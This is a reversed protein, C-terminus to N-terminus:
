ERRRGVNRPYVRTQYSWATDVNGLGDPNFDVVYLRDWPDTMGNLLRGRSFQMFQINYDNDGALLRVRESTMEMQGLGPLAGEGYTDWYAIWAKQLEFVESQAVRKRATQRARMLAPFLLAMLIGIIFIVVLLELLTFGRRRGSAGATVRADQGHGMFLARGDRRQIATDRIAMDYDM